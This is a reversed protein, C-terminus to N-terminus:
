KLAAAARHRTIADGVVKTWGSGGGREVDELNAIPTSVNPDLDIACPWAAGSAGGIGRYTNAVDIPLLWGVPDSSAHKALVADPVDLVYAIHFDPSLEYDSVPEDSCYIKKAGGEDSAAYRAIADDQEQFGDSAIDDLRSCRITAFIIM